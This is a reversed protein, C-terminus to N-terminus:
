LNKMARQIAEISFGRRALYDFLRRKRTMADIGQYRPWRKKIVKEILDQENITQLAQSLADRIIEESVGKQRLETQIRKFGFPKLLRTSVWWRAFELDDLLPITKLHNITQQIIEEPINKQQLREYLEKESRQRVKLLRYASDRARSLRKSDGSIPRKRDFSM